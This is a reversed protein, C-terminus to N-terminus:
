DKKLVDEAKGLYRAEGDPEIRFVFHKTVIMEPVAPKRTLVHYVDTDEPTDALVHTHIGAVQRDDKDEPPENEIVSRHLRRKERIASGDETPRSDKVQSDEHSCFPCRM